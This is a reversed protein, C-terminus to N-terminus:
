NHGVSQLGMSKLGGTEETWSIEWALISAHTAVESWESIYIYLSLSLSLSMYMCVYASIYWLVKWLNNYSILYLERILITFGKQKDIKQIFNTDTLGRNRIYGKGVERERKTCVLQKRHKYIQKMCLNAQIIKRSETFFHYTIHTKTQSVRRLLINELGWWTAAFSLIENKRHSLNWQTYTYIYIPNALFNTQGKRYLRM